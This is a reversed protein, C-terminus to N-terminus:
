AIRGQLKMQQIKRYTEQWFAPQAFEHFLESTIDKSNMGQARYQVIRAEMATNWTLPHPAQNLLYLEADIEGMFRPAGFEQQMAMLIQRTALGQRKLAMLRELMPKTFNTRDTFQDVKPYHKFQLPLM